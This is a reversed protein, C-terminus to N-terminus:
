AADKGVQKLTSFITLKDEDDKYKDLRGLLLCNLFTMGSLVAARVAQAQVNRNFNRRADSLVAWAAEVAQKDANPTSRYREAATRWQGFADYLMNFNQFSQTKFMVLSKMLENQTRLIAPRQMPSCNPQTEEIVRNYVEAVREYYADSRIAPADAHGKIQDRVYYESALWLTRTTALDVGQILNLAKPLGKKRSTIDGLETTSYGKRRYWYDPTYKAIVDMDVTFAQPSLAKLLPKWGLVGAATPYSAAQKMIVSTNLTLVAGANKSRLSAILRRFGDQQGKRANHVEALMDDLYQMASSGVESQHDKQAVM